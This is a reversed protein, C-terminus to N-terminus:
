AANLCAPWSLMTYTIKRHFCTQASQALMACTNKQPINDWVHKSLISRVFNKYFTSGVHDICCQIPQKGWLLQRNAIPWCQVPLIGTCQQGLAELFCQVPFFRTWHQRLVSSVVYCLYFRTCHQGLPEVCCHASCIKSLTTRIFARPVVNCLYFGQSINDFLSWCVVKCMFIDQGINDNYEQSLMACTFVRNLTVGSVGSLM